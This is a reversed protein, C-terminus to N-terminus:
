KDSITIHLDNRRKYFSYSYDNGDLAEIAFYRYDDLDGSLKSSIYDADGKEKLVGTGYVVWENKKPDHLYVKFSIGTKTTQNYIRINDELDGSVSYSDIVYSSPMEFDPQAYDLSKCSMFICVIGLILVVKKMFIGGKLGVLSDGCIGL